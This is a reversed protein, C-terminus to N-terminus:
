SLWGWLHCVIASGFGYYVVVKVSGRGYSPGVYYYSDALLVGPLIPFAWEVESLPGKPSVDTSPSRKGDIARQTVADAYRKGADLAMARRHSTAGGIWTWTYLGILVCIVALRWRKNTLFVVKAVIAGSCALILLTLITHM